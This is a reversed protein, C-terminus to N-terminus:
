EEGGQDQAFLAVGYDYGLTYALYLSGTRYEESFLYPDYPNNESGTNYGDLAGNAYARCELLNQIM